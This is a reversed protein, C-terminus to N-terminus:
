RPWRMARSLPRRLLTPNRHCDVHVLEGQEFVVIDGNLITLGCVVCTAQPEEAKASTPDSGGSVEPV